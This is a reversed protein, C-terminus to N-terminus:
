NEHRMLATLIFNPSIYSFSKKCTVCILLINRFPDCNFTIDVIVIAIGFSSVSLLYTLVKFDLINVIFHPIQPQSLSLSFWALCFLFLGFILGKSAMRSVCSCCLLLM